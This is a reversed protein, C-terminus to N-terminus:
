DGEDSGNTSLYLDERLCRIKHGTGNYVIVFVPCSTYAVFLVATFTARDGDQGRERRSYKQGEVLTQPRFYPRQTSMAFEGDISSTIIMM